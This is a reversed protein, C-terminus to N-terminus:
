EELAAKVFKEFVRRPKGYSSKFEPHFQTAVFFPHDKLEVGVVISKSQDWISGILGQEALKPWFEMNMAYSHWHREQEEEDFCEAAITNAVPHITCDGLNM